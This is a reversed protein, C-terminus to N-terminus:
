SDEFDPHPYSSWGVGHFDRYTVPLDITTGNAMAPTAVAMPIALGVALVLALLSFLVKKM